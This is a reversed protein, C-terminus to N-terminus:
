RSVRADARRPRRSGRREAGRREAVLEALPRTTEGAGRRSRASLAEVADGLYEIQQELARYRDVDVLVARVEGRQTVYLPADQDLRSLLEALTARLRAVTVFQDSMRRHYMWVYTMVYM